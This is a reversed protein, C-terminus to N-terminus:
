KSAVPPPLGINVFYSSIGDDPRGLNPTYGTMKYSGSQVEVSQAKVWNDANYYLELDFESTDGDVGELGIESDKLIYSAHKFAAGAKNDERSMFVATGLLGFIVRDPQFAWSLCNVVSVSEEAPTFGPPFHDKNGAAFPDVTDTKWEGNYVQGGDNHNM